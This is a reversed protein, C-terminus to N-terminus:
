RGVLLSSGMGSVSIRSCASLGAHDQGCTTRTRRVQHCSDCVGVKIGYRHNRDGSVHRHVTESLIGELLDIDDSDCLRDYFM